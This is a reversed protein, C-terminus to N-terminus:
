EEGEVLRMVINEEGEKGRRSDGETAKLFLSRIKEELEGNAEELLEKWIKWRREM